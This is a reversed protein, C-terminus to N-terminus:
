SVTESTTETNCIEKKFYAPSDGLLGSCWLFPNDLKVVYRVLKGGYFSEVGTIIGQGNPTIVRDNLQM